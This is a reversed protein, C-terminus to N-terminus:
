IIKILHVSELLDKWINQLESSLQAQKVTFELFNSYSQKTIYDNMRSTEILNQSNHYAFFQRAKCISESHKILAKCFIITYSQNHDVFRKLSSLQMSSYKFFISLHNNVMEIKKRQVESLQTLNSKLATYLEKYKKTFVFADQIGELKQAISALSLINENIKEIDQIM